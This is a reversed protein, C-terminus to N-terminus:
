AQDDIVTANTIAYGELVSKPKRNLQMGAVRESISGTRQREPNNNNGDDSMSSTRRRANNYMVGPVFEDASDNFGHGYAQDDLEQAVYFNQVTDHFGGILRQTLSLKRPMEKPMAAPPQQMNQNHNAM